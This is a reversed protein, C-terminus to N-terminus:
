FDWGNVDDTKGNGDNDVGDLPDLPNVWLNDNLDAHELDVGSDIVAVAAGSWGTSYDWAEPANIDNNNAASWGWQSSFGPDNPTTANWVGLQVPEVALFGPLRSLAIWMTDLTLNTPTKVTFQHEVGLFRDFEITSGLTRIQGRMAAAAAPTPNYRVGDSVVGGDEDLVPAPRDLTVIWSGEIVRAAEQPPSPIASTDVVGGGDLPHGALLRRAELAQVAAQALYRPRLSDSIRLM